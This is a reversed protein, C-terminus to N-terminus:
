IRRGGVAIDFLTALSGAFFESNIWVGVEQDDHPSNTVMMLVQNRDIIIFRANISMKVVKIKLRNTVERLEVDNGSLALKVVVGSKRLRSFVQDFVKYRRLIEAADMCIIVEKEANEVIEKLYNYINSKGRIASSLDGHKIPEIGSKHLDELVKYEETGRLNALTKVKEEAERRANNKLKEIIVAPKIAMYKVPKGLKILTFGAKELSELVDYTRSRPVGSVEAIEGVSSVGRTLLALWVRTEYINLSFYARIKKVLEPKIFTM